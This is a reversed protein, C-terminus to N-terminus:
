KWPGQTRLPHMCHRVVNVSWRTKLFRRKGNPTLSVCMKSGVTDIAPVQIGNVWIFNYLDHKRLATTQIFM